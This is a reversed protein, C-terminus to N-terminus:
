RSLVVNATNVFLAVVLALPALTWALEVSLYRHFHQASVNASRRHRVVSWSLLATVVIVGLGCAMLLLVDGEVINM